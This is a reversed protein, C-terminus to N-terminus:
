MSEGFEGYNDHNTVRDVVISKAVDLIQESLNTTIM